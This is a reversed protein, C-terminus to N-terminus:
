SNQIVWISGPHSEEVGIVEFFKRSNEFYEKSISEVSRTIKLDDVNRLIAGPEPYITLNGILYVRVVTHLFDSFSVKQSSAKLNTLIKKFHDRLSWSFSSLLSESSHSCSSEPHRSEKECFNEPNIVM